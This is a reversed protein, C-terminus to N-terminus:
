IPMQKFDELGQAEGSCMTDLDSPLQATASFIPSKVDDGLRIMVWNWVDRVKCITNITCTDEGIQIQNFSVKLYRYVWSVYRLGRDDSRKTAIHEMVRYETERVAAGCELAHHIIDEALRGRQRM